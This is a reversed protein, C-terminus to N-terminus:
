RPYIVKYVRVDQSENGFVLSLLETYSDFSAIIEDTPKRHKIPPSWEYGHWFDYYTNSSSVFVYRVSYKRLTHEIYSVNEPNEFIPFLELMRDLVLPPWDREPLFTVNKLSFSPLFLGIMSIDNLVLDQDAVNQHIWVMAAYDDGIPRSGNSPQLVFNPHALFILLTLVSGAAIVRLLQRKNPKQMRFLSIRRANRALNALIFNLSVSTVIYSLTVLPILTRVPTTMWLFNVYLEHETSFLFPVASCLFLLILQQYQRKMLLIPMLFLSLLILLGNVNLYLSNFPVWFADLWKETWTIRLAYSRLQWYLFGYQSVLAVLVFVILVSGIAIPIRNSAFVRKLRPLLLLFARALLYIILFQLFPYYTLFIALGLILIIALYKRSTIMTNRPFDDFCLIICFLTLTLLVGFFSTYVGQLYSAFLSFSRMSMPDLGPAIYAMLSAILSSLLSRTRTYVASYLLSPILAAIGTAAILIAEGPFIGTLFSVAVSLVNFGSPYYASLAVDWPSVINRPSLNQYYKVISVRLGHWVPDGPPAWGGMGYAIYIFHVLSLLFLLLPVLFKWTIKYNMLRAKIRTERKLIFLLWFFGAVVVIVYLNILLYGALSLVVVSGGLGVAIYVPMKVFFNLSSFDKSEILSLLLHGVPFAMAFLVLVDLLIQWFGLMM